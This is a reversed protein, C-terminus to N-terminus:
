NERKKRLQQCIINSVKNVYGENQLQNLHRSLTSMPIKLPEQLFVAWECEDNNYLMWLIIQEYNKRGALSHDIIEQPPFNSSSM